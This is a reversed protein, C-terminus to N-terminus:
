CASPPGSPSKASNILWAGSVRVMGYDIVWVSCTQGDHGNEASQETRLITRVVKADDAAGTVKQISIGKWYSTGLGASWSGVSQLKRQMRSTFVQWAADYNGTNIAEGHVLLSRAIDPAVRDDSSVNVDITREAGAADYPDSCDALPQDPQSRWRDLNTALDPGPILYGQGQAPEPSRAGAVWLRHGSVLGIVRGTADLVPGGSNGGNIASDTVMADIEPGGDYSIPQHLGSVSGENFRLEYTQLPFGLVGVSEGLDPLARALPLAKDTIPDDTRLLASDTKPDLGVVRARTVGDAYQLTIASAGAAVHNATMVLHDGVVFGSGMWRADCTVVDIRVIAPKALKAVEAWSAPSATTTPTSSPSDATSIPPSTATVTVTAPQPQSTAGDTVTPSSTVPAKASCAAVPGCLAVVGAAVVLHLARM